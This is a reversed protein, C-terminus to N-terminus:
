GEDEAAPPEPEPADPGLESLPASLILRLSSRDGSIAVHIGAGDSLVVTHHSPTGPHHEVTVLGQHALIDGAFMQLNVRSGVNLLRRNAM